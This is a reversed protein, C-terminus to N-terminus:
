RASEETGHGVLAWQGPPEYRTPVFAEGGRRSRTKPRIPARGYVWRSEEVLTPVVIRHRAAVRRLMADRIDALLEAMGGRAVVLVAVLAVPLAFRSVLPIFSLLGLVFSTAHGLLPGAVTGLGGFVALGFADLNRSPDHLNRAPDSLEGINGVNLLVLAGGVGALAGALAFGMLRARVVSIGYATTLAANDRSAILVRATRTRRLGVVSMTIVGTAVLIAYYRVRTDDLGMGLIVPRRVLDPWENGLYQEPTLLTSVSVGFALTIVALDLGRLRLAPFGVLTAVAAGAIAAALLALPAPLGSVAYAWAGVLALGFQGFSLQGAWGSVVLVSLGVVSAAAASTASRTQGPSLVWPAAAALLVAAAAAGRSWARVTPLRRLEGPIPRLERSLPSGAGEREARSSEDRRLLLVAGVIVVLWLDLARPSGTTFLLSRELLGIVLAALATVWLSTLRGLVAALLGPVFVDIPLAGVGNGTSLAGSTWALVVFFAAASAGAVLWMRQTVAFPDIGLTAARAPDSAAARIARGAASRRLYAAVGGVLVLACAVFAFDPESFETSALAVDLSFPPPAPESLGLGAANQDATFFWPELVVYDLRLALAGAFLSAVTALVPPASQFRRVVTQHFLWSLGMPLGIGIVVALVWNVWRWADTPDLCACLSDVARLPAQGLHLGVYFRAGLIAFAVAGLHLFRNTRWVLVFPLALLLVMAANVLGSVHVSLPPAPRLFPLVVCIASLVVLEPLWRYSRVRTLASRTPADM